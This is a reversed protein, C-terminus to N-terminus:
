GYWFPKKSTSSTEGQEPKETETQEAALYKIRYNAASVLWSPDADVLAYATNCYKCLLGRPASTKHDHDVALRRGTACPKFCIACVGEQEALREEYWDLGVGYRSRLKEDVCKLCKTRGEEPSIDPHYPCRGQAKLKQRYEKNYSRRDRM